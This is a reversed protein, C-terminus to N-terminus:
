QPKTQQQRKRARVKKKGPHSLAYYKNQHYTGRALLYWDDRYYEAKKEKPVFLVTDQVPAVRVRRKRRIQSVPRSSFASVFIPFRRTLDARELLSSVRVVDTPFRDVARAIKRFPATRGQCFELWPVAESVNVAVMIFLLSLSAVRRPWKNESWAPILALLVISVPLFFHAVRQLLVGIKDDALHLCLPLAALVFVVASELGTRLKGKEVRADRWVAFVWCVALISLSIVFAPLYRERAQLGTFRTFILSLLLASSLCWISVVRVALNKRIEQIYGCIAMVFVSLMYPSDFTSAMHHGMVVRSPKGAFTVLPKGLRLYSSPRWSFLFDGGYVADASSLVLWGLLGGAAFQCARRIRLPQFSWLYIVPPVVALGTEKSKIAFLAFLGCACWAVGRFRSSSHATLAAALAACSYTAMAPDPLPDTFQTLLPAVLPAVSAAVVGALPSHLRRGIVYVAWTLGLQVAIGYGVAGEFRSGLIDTFVRLGWVHVYRNVIASDLKGQAGYVVLYRFDDHRCPGVKLWTEGLVIWLLSLVLLAGFVWYREKGAGFTPGSAVQPTVM